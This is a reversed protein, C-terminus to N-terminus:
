MTTTALKRIKGGSKIGKKEKYLHNSPPANTRKKSLKTHRQAALSTSSRPNSPHLTKKKPNGKDSKHKRGNKKGSYYVEDSRHLPYCFFHM